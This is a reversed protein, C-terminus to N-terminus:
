PKKRMMPFKSMANDLATRFAPDTSCADGAAQLKETAAKMRPVFTAAFWEAAEKNGKAAKMGETLKDGRASLKEVETTNREIAAVVAKCDGKAAAIDGVLKEFATVYVDFTDAMEKSIAAPREGPAPAPTASGGSTGTSSGSGSGGSDKSGCAAAALAVIVILTRM